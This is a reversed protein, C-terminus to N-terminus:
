RFRVREQRQKGIQRGKRTHARLHYPMVHAARMANLSVSVSRNYFHCIYPLTVSMMTSLLMCGSAMNASVFVGFCWQSLGAVMALCLANYGLVWAMVTHRM